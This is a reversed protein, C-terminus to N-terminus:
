GKHGFKWASGEFSWYHSAACVTHSQFHSSPVHKLLRYFSFFRCQSIKAECMEVQSGSPPAMCRWALSVCQECVCKMVCTQRSPKKADTVCSVEMYPLIIWYQGTCSFFMGWCILDVPIHKSSWLTKVNDYPGHVYTINELLFHIRILFM